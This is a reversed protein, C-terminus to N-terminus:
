GPIMPIRKFPPTFDITVVPKGEGEGEPHYPVVYSGCIEKVM